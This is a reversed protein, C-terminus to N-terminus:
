FLEITKRDAIFGKPLTSIDRQEVYDGEKNFCYVLYASDDLSQGKYLMCEFVVFLFDPYAESSFLEMSKVAVMDHHFNTSGHEVHFKFNRAKGKIKNVVEINDM